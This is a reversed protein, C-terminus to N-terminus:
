QYIQVLAQKCTQLHLLQSFLLELTTEKRLMFLTQQGQYCARKEKLVKKQVVM